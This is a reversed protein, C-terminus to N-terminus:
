AATPAGPEDYARVYQRVARQVLNSLSREELAAVRKANDRLDVPITVSTPYAKGEPGTKMM